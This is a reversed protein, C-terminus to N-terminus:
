ALGEFGPENPPIGMEGAVRVYDDAVVHALHLPDSITFAYGRDHVVLATGGTLAAELFRVLGTTRWAHPRRPDVCMVTVARDPHRFVYAGADKPHPLGDRDATGDRHGQIYRCVFGACVAPRAPADYVGCGSGAIHRCPHYPPKALAEIRFVVCCLTCGDCSAAAPPRADGGAGVATM